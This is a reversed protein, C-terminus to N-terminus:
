AISRRSTLAGRNRKRLKAGPAEIVDWPPPEGGFREALFNILLQLAKPQHRRSLYVVHIGLPEPDHDPPLRV